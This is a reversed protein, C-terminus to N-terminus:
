FTEVDSAVVEWNLDNNFYILSPKKENQSYDLAFVMDIGIEGILLVNYGNIFGPNLDEIKKGFWFIDDNFFTDYNNGLQLNHSLVQRKYDNRLANTEFHIQNLPYLLPKRVKDPFCIQWLDMNVKKEWDSELADILVKPVKKKFITM